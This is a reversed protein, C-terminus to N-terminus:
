MLSHYFVFLLRKSMQDPSMTCLEMIMLGRSSVEEEASSDKMVCVM